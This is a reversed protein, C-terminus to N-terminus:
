RPSKGSGSSSLFYGPEGPRRGDVRLVKVSDDAEEAAIFGLANPAQAVIRKVAASSAVVRPYSAIEGRYLKGLWFQKLESDSMRYLRRLLVRKEPTGSELLILYIRGGGRWRQVELHAMRQLEAASLNDVANQPNVVIALDAGHATPVALLLLTVLPALPSAARQIARRM